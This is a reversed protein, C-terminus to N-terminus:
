LMEVNMMKSYHEKGKKDVVSFKLHPTVASMLRFYQDINEKGEVKFKPIKIEEEHKMESLLVEVM